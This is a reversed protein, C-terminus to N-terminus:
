YRQLFKKACFFYHIKILYIKIQNRYFVIFNFPLLRFDDVYVDNLGRLIFIRLPNIVVIRLRPLWLLIKREKRPLLLLPLLHLHLGKLYNRVHNGGCLIIPDNRAKLFLHHDAINMLPHLLWILQQILILYVLYQFILRKVGLEM